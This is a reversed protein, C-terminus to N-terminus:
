TNLTPTRAALVLTKDDDTRACVRPSALFGALQQGALATDGAAAIFAFLPKFFPPHPAYAPLKLALRLLGDTSMALARVTLAHVQVDVYDGAQPMTLFYAENAYEGRQPRVTALLNGEGDSAVALGDGIQGVILQDPTVVACTLTTAFVRLSSGDQAALQAIADGADAFCQAMTARWLLEDTPISDSLVIELSLIAQQVALRAGEDSRAASGAGDAVAIVLHGEPLVRYLHADQCPVDREM